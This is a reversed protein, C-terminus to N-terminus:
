ILGGFSVRLPVLIASFYRVDWYARCWPGYFSIRGSDGVDRPRALDVLLADKIASVRAMALDDLDPDDIPESAVLQAELAGIYLLADPIQM